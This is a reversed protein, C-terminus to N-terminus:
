EGMLKEDKNNDRSITATQLMNNQLKMFDHLILATKEANGEQKAHALQMKIDHVIVKWQKKQLQILLKDFEDTAIRESDELLLRSIYQKHTDDLMDFFMSFTLSGDKKQAEQLQAVLTGLPSPLYTILHQHKNGQLLQVNNMIACFIKKELNSPSHSEQPQPVMHTGPSNDMAQKKMKNFEEKLSDFPVDFAKSAQQLLLDKKLPDTMNAMISLLSRTIQLKQTLPKNIFKEGLTSIFFLFIDQASHILTTLTNNKGLFSAPDEGPPLTVVKLELNVQWCMETLRLMAQQGANDSDYMVFLREAYRSIQKLHEITCATGLTAITNPFNHQVMAMCDTYGEVLFVTGTEQITKKARDLNFLLSGKIFYDNEHSNYYKARTDYDRFIRGGFGCYRGLTDQIPFILREEFPSYFANKKGHAIIHADLLDQALISENKMCYLLNNIGAAGGPFYGLNFYTMSNPGFGRKQFYALAYQNKQLQEQCWRAVAKCISFYHNKEETKESSEFTITNPINIRYREALLQAAEKQSCNEIKAMFSIVDGSIHCGFCYFIAKDPSVTFSATKEHHFPCTGKYYGGARKLTVYEGIIDLISVREKIFSFINM